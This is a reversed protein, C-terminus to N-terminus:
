QQPVNQNLKNPEPNQPTKQNNKTKTKIKIKQYEEEENEQEKSGAATPWRVAVQRQLLHRTLHSGAAGTYQQKDRKPSSTSQSNLVLPQSNM